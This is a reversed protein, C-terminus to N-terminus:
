IPICTSSPFYAFSIAASRKDLELKSITHIRLSFLSLSLFGYNFNNVFNWISQLLQILCHKRVKLKRPHQLVVEARAFSFGNWLLIPFYCGRAHFTVVARRQWRWLNYSQLLSSLFTLSNILAKSALAVSTHSCPKCPGLLYHLPQSFSWLLWQLFHCYRVITFFCFCHHDQGMELDEQKGFVVICSVSFLFLSYASLLISPLSFTQFFVLADSFLALAWNNLVLSAM